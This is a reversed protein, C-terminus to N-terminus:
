PWGAASRSARSPSAPATMQRVSWRPVRLTVNSPALTWALARAALELAEDAPEPTSAMVDADPDFARIVV